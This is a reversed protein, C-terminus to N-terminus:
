EGYGLGLEGGGVCVCRGWPTKVPRLALTRETYSGTFKM